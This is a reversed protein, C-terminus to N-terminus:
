FETHLAAYGTSTNQTYFSLLHIIAFRILFVSIFYLFQVLYIVTYESMFLNAPHTIIARRDGKM